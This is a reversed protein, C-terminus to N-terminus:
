KKRKFESIIFLFCVEALIAELADAMKFFGFLVGTWFDTAAESKDCAFPLLFPYYLKEKTLKFFFRSKRELPVLMLVGFRTHEKIKAEPGSM